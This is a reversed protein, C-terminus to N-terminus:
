LILISISPHLFEAIKTEYVYNQVIFFLYIFAQYLSPLRAINSCHIQAAIGSRIM